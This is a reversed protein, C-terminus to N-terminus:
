VILRKKAEALVMRYNEYPGPHTITFWFQELTIKRLCLEKLAEIFRSPQAQQFNKNALANKIYTDSIKEWSFQDAQVEHDYITKFLYCCWGLMCASMVRELQPSRKFFDYNNYMTYAVKICGMGVSSSWFAINNSRKLLAHDFHLHGAEHLLARYVFKSPDTNLDRVCANSLIIYNRSSSQDAEAYAVTDNLGEPHQLIVLPKNQPIVDGLITRVLNDIEPTVPRPYQSTGDPMDYAAREPNHDFINQYLANMGTYSFVIFLSFIKSKNM